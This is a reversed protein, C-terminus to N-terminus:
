WSFDHYRKGEPSIIEGGARRWTSVERYLAEEKLQSLASEYRDQM